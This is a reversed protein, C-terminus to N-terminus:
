YVCGMTDARIKAFCPRYYFCMELSVSCACTSSAGFSQWLGCVFFAAEIGEAPPIEGSVTFDSM